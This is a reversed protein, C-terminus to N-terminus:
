TKTQQLDYQAELELTYPNSHATVEDKRLRDITM